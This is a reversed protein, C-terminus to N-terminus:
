QSSKGWLGKTVRWPSIFLVYLFTLFALALGFMMEIIDSFWKFSSPLVFYVFTALLAGTIILGIAPLLFCSLFKKIAEKM